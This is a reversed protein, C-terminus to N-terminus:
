GRWIAPSLRGLLGRTDIHIFTNYLGFGCLLPTVKYPITHFYCDFQYKGRLLDNYIIKLSEHTCGVPAFDIANFSLHLSNVEGNARENHLPNRFTSHISIPIGIDNRILQLLKLTPAINPILLPPIEGESYGHLIETISFNTIHNKNIIEQIM